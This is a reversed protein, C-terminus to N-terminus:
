EARSKSIEKIKNKRLSNKIEAIRFNKTHEKSLM